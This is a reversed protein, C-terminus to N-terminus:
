PVYPMVNRSSRGLPAMVSLSVRTGERSKAVDIRAISRTTTHFRLGFGYDHELRGRWLGSATPAVRGADVFLAADMMGFVPWRSEASVFAANRDRFRYDDFGRLTSRGGLTPMLYFPVEDGGSTQSLAVRARVGVIWKRGFLPVYQTADADVRRFSQGSGDLDRFAALGLRYAGGRTPRGPVDRTDAGVFADARAYRPQVTLGPASTDDFVDHTSPHSAGLGPTIALGHIYGVGGGMSLWDTPRATAFGSLDINKLRYDTQAGKDTDPGVGFYKIRTFDQYKAGAGISLRNSFLAPWEIRSQMMAYRRWSMAASVDVVAADGFLHHRYGPGASLWGAGPIMGGLEPYLGDKASGSGDGMKNVWSFMRPLGGPEDFPPATDSQAALEHSTDNASAPQAAAPKVGLAGVVAIVALHVLCTRNM